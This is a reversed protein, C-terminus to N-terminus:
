MDSAHARKVPRTPTHKTVRPGPAVLADMPTCVASWLEVGMTRNTPWTPRGWRPNSAKWSTSYVDNKSSRALHTTSTSSAASRGCTTVAANVMAVLPRGPGTTTARGSSTRRSRVIAWGPEATSTVSCSGVSVPTAATCDTRVPASRGTSRAPPPPHVSTPRLASAAKVSAASRGTTTENRRCSRNSLVFAQYVPSAPTPIGGATRSVRSVASTTRLRFQRNPSIVVATYVSKPVSPRGLSWCITCICGDTYSNPFTTVGTAVTWAPGFAM